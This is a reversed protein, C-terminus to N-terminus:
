TLGLESAYWAASSGPVAPTVGDEDPATGVKTVDGHDLVRCKLAAIRDQVRALEVLTERTAAVGLESMAVFSTGDAGLIGDLVAHARGAFAHVLHRRGAVPTSRKEEIAM